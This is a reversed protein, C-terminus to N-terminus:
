CRPHLHIRLIAATLTSSSPSSFPHRPCRRTRGLVTTSQRSGCLQCLSGHQILGLLVAANSEHTPQSAIISSFLGDLPLLPPLTPAQVGGSITHPFRRILFRGSKSRGCLYRCLHHYHLNPLRLRHQEHKALTLTVVSCHRQSRIPRTHHSISSTIHLNHIHNVGVHAHSVSDCLVGCRGIM